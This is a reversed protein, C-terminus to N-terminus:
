TSARHKIGPATERHESVYSQLPFSMQDKTFNDGRPIPM